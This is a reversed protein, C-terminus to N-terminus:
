NNFNPSDITILGGITRYDSELNITTYRIKIYHTSTTIKPTNDRSINQAGNKTKMIIPRNARLQYQLDPEGGLLWDGHNEHLINRPMGAAAYMTKTGGMGAAPSNVSFGISYCPQAAVDWANTGTGTALKDAPETGAPSNFDVYFEVSHIIHAKGPGPTQVLIHPSNYLNIFGYKTIKFTEIRMDEVIKGGSGVGLTYQAGNVSGSRAFFNGQGYKGIKVFGSTPSDVYLNGTGINVRDAKVMAFTPTNSTGLGLETRSASINKTLKFGPFEPTNDMLVKQDFHFGAAYNSSFSVREFNGGKAPAGSISFQTGGLKLQYGSDDDTSKVLFTSDSAGGHGSLQIETNQLGRVLIKNAGEASGVTLTAAGSDRNLVNFSNSVGYFNYTFSGFTGGGIDNIGVDLSNADLALINSYTTGGVGDDSTSGVKLSNKKLTGFSSELTATINVPARSSPCNPFLERVANPTNSGHALKLGPFIPTNSGTQLTGNITLGGNLTTNGNLVPIIGVTNATVKTGASRISAKISM